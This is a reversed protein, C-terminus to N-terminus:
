WGIYGIRGLRNCYSVCGEDWVQCVMKDKCGLSHNCAIEVVLSVGVVRIPSICLNKPMMKQELLRSGLFTFLM